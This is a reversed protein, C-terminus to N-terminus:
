KGVYRQISDLIYYLNRRAIKMMINSNDNNITVTDKHRVQFKWNLM